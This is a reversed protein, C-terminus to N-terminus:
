LYVNTLLITHETDTGVKRNRPLSLLSDSNYFSTSYSPDGYGLAFWSVESEAVVQRLSLSSADIYDIGLLRKDMIKMVRYVPESTYKSMDVKKQLSWTEISSAQLWEEIEKESHCKSPDDDPGKTCKKVEFQIYKVVEEGDQGILEYDILNHDPCIMSKGLRTM